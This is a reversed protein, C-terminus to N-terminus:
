RSKRHLEARATTIGIAHLGCPKHHAFEDLPQWLPALNRHPARWERLAPLTDDAAAFTKVAGHPSVLEVCDGSCIGPAALDSSHLFVSNFGVPTLSPNKLGHSNMVRNTRRPVLLYKYDTPYHRVFSNARFRNLAEIM